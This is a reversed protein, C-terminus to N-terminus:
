VAGVIAFPAFVGTDVADASREAHSRMVEVTAVELTM